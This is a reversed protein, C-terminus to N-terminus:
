FDDYDEDDLIEEVEEMKTKCSEEKEKKAACSEEFDNFM